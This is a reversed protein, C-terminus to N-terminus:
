DRLTWVEGSKWDFFTPTTEYCWGFSMHCSHCANAAAVVHKKKDPGVFTLDGSRIAVAHPAYPNAPEAAVREAKQEARVEAVAAAEAKKDIFVMGAAEAEALAAKAANSFKGRTNAIALPPNLSALWTRKDLAVTMIEESLTHRAQLILM